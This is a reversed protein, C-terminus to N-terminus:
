PPFMAAELCANHLLLQSNEMKMQLISSQSFHFVPKWAALIFTMFVM